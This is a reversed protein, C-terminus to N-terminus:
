GGRPLRVTFVTHGHESSNVQTEGGHAHAVQQVIYLGLGVSRSSAKGRAGHRFPQFLAPRLEPAIPEGENHVALLVDNGEDRVEVRVPTGERGHQVANSVLNGVVQTLRDPDWWGWGDGRADLELRQNAYAVQLEELASRCLEHLNVRERHVPLGESTNSRAFDLIDNLMRAMRAASARIREVARLADAELNEERRLLGASISIANLPNRLDHGVVGILRERLEGARRLEAEVRKQQTINVLVCGVGDVEGDANRVPYYHCLWHQEPGEKWPPSTFEHDCIPQGEELVRRFHPEILAAVWDPAMERLPRGLHQKTVHGNLRALTDNICIFRLERDMLCLGVPCAEVLTDMLSLLRQAEARAAQEREISEAKVIFNLARTMLTRFLQKDSETFDFLTRSGMHAVGILREGQLLPVSYVARVGLRRVLDSRVEPHTSAMRVLIPRRQTAVQGTLGADLPLHINSELSEKAGLGVAARLRLEAKDSLLIAAGDVSVSCELLINLLRTLFTDVDQNTVAAESVRELAELMRDRMTTYLSTARLIGQDISEHLLAWQAFGGVHALHQHLCHRLLGFELAVRDPELGAELHHLTHEDPIFRALQGEAPPHELVDAMRELFGPLYAHLLAERVLGDPQHEAVAREWHRLIDERHRRLSDALDHSEDSSHEGKEQMVFM